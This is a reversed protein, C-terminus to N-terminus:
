ALFRKIDAHTGALIFRLEPGTLRYLVRISLGARAEWLDGRLRKIGLGPTRAGTEYFDIVRAVASIAAPRVSPDLKALRREFAPAFSVLV